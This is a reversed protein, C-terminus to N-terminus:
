LTTTRRTRDDRASGCGHTDARGQFIRTQNVFAPIAITQVNEPLTVAHGGTHYGCGTFFGCVFIAAALWGKASFVRAVPKLGRSEMM